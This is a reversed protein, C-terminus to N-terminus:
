RKIQKIQNTCFQLPWTEVILVPKKGSFSSIEPGGGMENVISSQQNLIAIYL